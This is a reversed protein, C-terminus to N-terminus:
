NFQGLPQLLETKMLSNLFGCADPLLSLGAFRGKVPNNVIRSQDDV